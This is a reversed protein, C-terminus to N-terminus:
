GSYPRGMQKGPRTPGGGSPNGFSIRGFLRELQAKVARDEVIPEGMLLRALAYAFNIAHLTDDPKSGHRRYKFTGVGLSSEAPCRILNLLDDLQEHAHEYAYCRIRPGGAERKIAEFLSTISETRNLSYQNFWGQKEPPAFLASNPGVYNLILHKDANIKDTQERLLMNYAAGVGFDTAIPGGGLRHHDFAIQSAIERYGMGGYRRMHIIDLNGDYRVGLMVHVTTSVKTQFAPMYDSGGWDCGSIVWKYWGKKAQAQLYEISDPLCCMNKLDDATLERAGEETAIGMVEQLFKALEYKTFQQYIESWKVLNNAYYPIIMQPVHLGVWGRELLRPFKHVWRGQTVDLLRSCEPCTPGEPQIVPIVQEKEACDIERGCDCFLHWSGQSSQLWRAELASDITMSTGAYITTPMDSAKQCQEVDAELSADFSQYEDYILQDMTNSRASNANSLVKVLKLVAKNPFEKYTLNQRFGTDQTPFRFAREMESLRDAYTKLQEQHPVVYMSRYGGVIHAMIKQLAAITTSKGTQRSSRIVTYGGIQVNFMAFAYPRALLSLPNAGPYQPFFYPVLMGANYDCSRLIDLVVAGRDNEYRENQQAKIELEDLKSSLDGIHSAFAPNSKLEWALDFYAM